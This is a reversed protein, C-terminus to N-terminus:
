KAEGASGPAIRDGARQAAKLQDVLTRLAEDPACFLALGLLDAGGDYGAFFLGGSQTFGKTSSDTVPRNKM